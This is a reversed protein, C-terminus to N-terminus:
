ANGPTKAKADLQAPEDVQGFDSPYNWWDRKGMWPDGANNVESRLKGWTNSYIGYHDVLLPTAIYAPSDTTWLQHWDEDCNYAELDQQALDFWFDRLRFMQPRRVAYGFAGYSSTVQTLLTDFNPKSTARVHHGGLLMMSAERPLNDYAAYFDAPWKVDEFPKADDEMFLAVEVNDDIAKNLAKVFTKLIGLGRREEVIATVVNIELEPWASRWWGMFDSLRDQQTAINMVYAKLHPPKGTSKKKEQLQGKTPMPIFKLEEKVVPSTPAKEEDKKGSEKQEQPEKKETEDNPTNIKEAVPKPIPLKAKNQKSQLFMSKVNRLLSRERLRMQDEIVKPMMHHNPHKHAPKALPSAVVCIACLVALIAATFRAM